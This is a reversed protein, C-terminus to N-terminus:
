SFSHGRWLLSGPGQALRSLKDVEDEVRWAQRILDPEPRLADVPVEGPDIFDLVESSPDLM